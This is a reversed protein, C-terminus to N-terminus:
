ASLVEDERLQKIQQHEKFDTVVTCMGDNDYKLMGNDHLVQMQEQM